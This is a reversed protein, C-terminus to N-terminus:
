LCDKIVQIVSAQEIPTLGPYIPLCLIRSAVDRSILCAQHSQTKSITNKM